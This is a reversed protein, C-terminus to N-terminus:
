HFLSRILFFFNQIQTFAQASKVQTRLMNGQSLIELNTDLPLLAGNSQPVVPDRSVRGNGVVVDM